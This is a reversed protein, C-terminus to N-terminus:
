GPAPSPRRASVPPAIEASDVLRAGADRMQGLAQAEDGPRLDVARIGDRVVDVEFGLRRADLVTAKVCYDTALGGVVLRTVQRAHLADALRDGADTQGDFPSYGDEDPAQGKSVVIVGDPLRLGGHFAAGPTGAVCHVPWPGGATVFHRSEAPHWDRTAVIPAGAAAMREALRSMVPVVRDGEPVALAGGPCFDNQVDVVILATHAFDVM